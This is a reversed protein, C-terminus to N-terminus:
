SNYGGKRNFSDRWLGELRMHELVHRGAGLFAVLASLTAQLDDTTFKHDSDWGNVGGTSQEGMSPNASAILIAKAQAEAIHLMAWEPTVFDDDATSLNGTLLRSLEIAFNEHKKSQFEAEREESIPPLTVPPEKADDASM